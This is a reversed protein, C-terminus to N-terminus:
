EAAAGAVRPRLRLRSLVSAGVGRTAARSPEECGHGGTDGRDAAQEPAQWQEFMEQVIPRTVGVTYSLMYDNM